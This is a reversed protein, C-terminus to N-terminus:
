QWNFAISTKSSLSDIRVPAAPQQPVDTIASLLDASYEGWGISNRARYRLRYIQGSVLSDRFTDLEFMEAQGDYNTIVTYTLGDTSVSLEYELITDGQQQVNRNLQVTLTTQTASIFVPKEAKSPEVAMLLYSVPSYDSWGYENLARYRFGYERAKTLGSVTNTL